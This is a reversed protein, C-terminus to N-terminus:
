LAPFSVHEPNNWLVIAGSFHTRPASPAQIRFNSSTDADGPPSTSVSQQSWMNIEAEAPPPAALPSAQGTISTSHDLLVSPSDRSLSLLAEQFVPAGPLSLFCFYRAVKKSEAVCM